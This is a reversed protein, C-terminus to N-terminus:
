KTRGKKAPKKKAIFKKHAAKAVKARPSTARAYTGPALPGKRLETMQEDTWRATSGIYTPQLIRGAKVWRKVTIESVRCLAAVDTYTFFRPAYTGPLTNPKLQVLEPTEADVDKM